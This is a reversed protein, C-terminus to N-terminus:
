ARCEAAPRVVIAQASVLLGRTVSAAAVVPYWLFKPAVRVAWTSHVGDYFIPTRIPPTGAAM